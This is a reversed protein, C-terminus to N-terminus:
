ACPIAPMRFRVVRKPGSIFSQMAAAPRCGAAIEPAAQVCRNPFIGEGIRIGNNLGFQYSVKKKAKFGKAALEAILM